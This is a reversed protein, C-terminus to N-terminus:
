ELDEMKVTLMRKRHEEQEVERLYRALNEFRDHGSFSQLLGLNMGYLRLRLKLGMERLYHPFLGGTCHNVIQYGRSARFKFLEEHKSLGELHSLIPVSFIGLDGKLPLSFASRVPYDDVSEILESSKEKFRRKVIRVGRIWLFDDEISLMDRTVSQATEVHDEFAKLFRCIESIRSCSLYLLAMFALDRQQYFPENTGYSCKRKNITRWIMSPSHYVTYDKEVSRKKKIRIERGYKAHIIWTRPM